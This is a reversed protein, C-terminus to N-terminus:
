FFANKKPNLWNTFELAIDIHAYTGGYTGSKSFIGIANTMEVWKRTSIEFYNLKNNKKFGGLHPPKFYVNNLSEWLTLFEITKHNKIWNSIKKNSDGPCSKAINTLSIYTEQKIISLSISINQVVLTKKNTM